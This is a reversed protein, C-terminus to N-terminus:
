RKGGARLDVEGPEGNGWTQEASDLEQGHKRVQDSPGGAKGLM